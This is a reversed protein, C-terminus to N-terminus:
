LRQSCIQDNEIAPFLNRFDALMSHLMGYLAKSPDKMPDNEAGRIPRSKLIKWSEPTIPGSLKHIKPVLKMVGIRPNKVPIKPWWHRLNKLQVDSCNKKFTAIKKQLLAICEKESMTQLIHGGKRIQENYQLSYWSAPLVSVGVNKDCPSIICDEPIM